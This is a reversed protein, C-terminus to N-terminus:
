TTSLNDSPQRQAVPHSPCLSSLSSLSSVSSVCSVSSLSSDSSSISIIEPIESSELSFELLRWVMTPFFVDPKNVKDRGRRDKRDLVKNKSCRTSMIRPTSVVRFLDKIKTQLNYEYRQLLRVCMRLCRKNACRDVQVTTEVVRTTRIWLLWAPM